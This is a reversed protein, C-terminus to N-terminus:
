IKEIKAAVVKPNRKQIEERGMKKYDFSCEHKDAYRHLSCFLSGCRCEFGTLGVKKRCVFCRNRKSSKSPPSSATLDCPQTTTVDLGVAGDTSETMDDQEVRSNVSERDLGTGTSLCSSRTEKRDQCDRYCKSCLGECAPSGFRDRICM